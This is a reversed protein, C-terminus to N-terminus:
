RLLAVPRCVVRAYSIRHYSCETSQGVWTAVSRAFPALCALDESNRHSQSAPLSWKLRFFRRISSDEDFSPPAKM